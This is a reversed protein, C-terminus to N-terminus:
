GISARNRLIHSMACVWRVIWLGHHGEELGRGLWKLGCWRGSREIMLFLV